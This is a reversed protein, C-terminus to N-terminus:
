SEKLPHIVQLALHISLRQLMTQKTIIVGCNSSKNNTSCMYPLILSCTTKNLLNYVAYKELLIDSAFRSICFFFFLLVVVKTGLHGHSYFFNM